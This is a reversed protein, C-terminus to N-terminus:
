EVAPGASDCVSSGPGQVIWGDVWSSTVEDTGGVRSLGPPRPDLGWTGIRWSCRGPRRPPGPHGAGRM